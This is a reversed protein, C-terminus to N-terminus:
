VEGFKEVQREASRRNPREQLRDVSGIILLREQILRTALPPAVACEPVRLAAGTGSGCAHLGMMPALVYLQVM